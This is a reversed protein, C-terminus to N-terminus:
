KKGKKITELKKKRLFKEIEAIPIEELLKQYDKIENEDDVSSSCPHGLMGFDSYDYIYDDFVMKKIGKM